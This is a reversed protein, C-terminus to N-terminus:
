GKLYHGLFQVMRLWADQAAEPRFSEPRTDNMFAHGAGPYEHLSTPQEQNRLVERFEAVDRAPILADEAGYLGLLSCGLEKVAQLPSLPKKTPDLDQEYRLMGYFPVCAAINALECAALIAYQGGMCFGIVAIRQEEVRPDASLHQVAAKIEALVAADSLERIWRIASEVDDIEPTGIRRYVDVALVCYGEAALRRALERYHESLGRVDPVLVVAPLSEGEPMALFGLEFETEQM